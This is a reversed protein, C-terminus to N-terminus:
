EHWKIVNHLEPKMNKKYENFVKDVKNNLEDDAYGLGLTFYPQEDKVIANFPGKSKKPDFICRCFSSDLGINNALISIVYAHVGAGIAAVDKSIDFRNEWTKVDKFTPLNNMPNHHYPSKRYVLLYPAKVQDNYKELGSSTNLPNEKWKNYLKTQKEWPLLNNEYKCSTRICLDDKENSWTPGYIDISFHWIDNKIPAFEISKKLIEDIIEKKPYETQKFFRFNHRRKLADELTM